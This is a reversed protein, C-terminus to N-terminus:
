IDNDVLLEPIESYRKISFCGFLRSMRRKIYEIWTEQKNNNLTVTIHSPYTDYAHFTPQSIGISFSRNLPKNSNYKYRDFDNDLNYEFIYDNSDISSTSSMM